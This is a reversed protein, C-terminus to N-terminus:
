KTLEPIPESSWFLTTAEAPSTKISGCNRSEVGWLLAIRANEADFEEQSTSPFKGELLGLRKSTKVPVAIPVLRAAPRGNRAIIIESEAGSEVREVLRSLNSKAELMDVTTM